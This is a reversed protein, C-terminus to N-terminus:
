EGIEEELMHIKENLLSIAKNISANENKLSVLINFLKTHKVNQEDIRKGILDNVDEIKKTIEEKFENFLDTFDYEHIEEKKKSEILEMQLKMMKINIMHELERIKGKLSKKEDHSAENIRSLSVGELKDILDEEM